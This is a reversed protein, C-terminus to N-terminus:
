VHLESSRTLLWQLLASQRKTLESYYLLALGVVSMVIFNVVRPSTADGYSLAIAVPISYTLLFALIEIFVPALVAM